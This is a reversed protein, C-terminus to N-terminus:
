PVIVKPIKDQHEKLARILGSVTDDPVIVETKMHPYVFSLVVAGPITNIRIALEAPPPQSPLQPPLGNIM